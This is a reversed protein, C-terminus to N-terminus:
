DETLGYHFAVGPHYQVGIRQGFDVSVEQRLGM